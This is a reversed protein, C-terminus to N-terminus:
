LLKLFYRKKQLNPYVSDGFRRHLTQESFVFFLFVGGSTENLRMIKHIDGDRRMLMDSYSELLLHQNTLIQLIEFYNAFKIKMQM